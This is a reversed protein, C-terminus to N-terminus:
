ECANRSASRPYQLREIECSVALSTIYANTPLGSDVPTWTAGDNTSIFVGGYFTGAFLTIRGAGGSASAVVIANVCNTDTLGANISRWRSGGDTSLFVSGHMGAYINAGSVAFANIQGGYPGTQIWQSRSQNSMLLSILVVASVLPATRMKSMNVGIAFQFRAKAPSFVFFDAVM